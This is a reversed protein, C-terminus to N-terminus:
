VNIRVITNTEDLGKRRRISTFRSGAKYDARVGDKSRRVDDGTRWRHASKTGGGYVNIGSLSEGSRSNGRNNTAIADATFLWASYPRGECLVIEGDDRNCGNKSALGEAEGWRRERSPGYIDCTIGASGRVEAGESRPGLEVIDTGHVGIGLVSRQ